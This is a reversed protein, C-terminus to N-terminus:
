SVDNVAPVFGQPCTLPPGEDVPEQSDLVNATLQDVTDSQSLGHTAQLQNLADATKAGFMGDSKCFFRKTTLREQLVHVRPRKEWTGFNIGDNRTLGVLDTESAVSGVSGGPQELLRTENKKVATFSQLDPQESVSEQTGAVVEDSPVCFNGIPKVTPKPVGICSKSDPILQKVSASFNACDKNPFPDNPNDYQVKGRTTIRGKTTSFCWSINNKFGQVCVQFANSLQDLLGQSAGGSNCSYLTIVAGQTFRDRLNVITSKNEAITGSSILGSMM